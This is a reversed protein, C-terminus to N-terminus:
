EEILAQEVAAIVLQGVSLSLEKKKIKNDIHKAIKGDEIYTNKLGNM